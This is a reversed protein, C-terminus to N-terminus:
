PRHPAPVRARARDQVTIIEVTGQLVRQHELTVVAKGENMREIVRVRNGPLARHRHFQTALM